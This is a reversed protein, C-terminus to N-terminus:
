FAPFVPTQFKVSHSTWIASLPPYEALYRWFGIREAIQAILAGSQRYVALYVLRYVSGLGNARGVSDFCFNTRTPEHPESARCAASYHDVYFESTAM